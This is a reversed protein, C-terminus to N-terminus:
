AMPSGTFANRVDEVNTVKTFTMTMGGPTDTAVITTGPVPVHLCRRARVALTWTCVSRTATDTSVPRRRSPALDHM